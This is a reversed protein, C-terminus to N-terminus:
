QKISTIKCVDPLSSFIERFLLFTSKSVNEKDGSIRKRQFSISSTGNVIKGSVNRIGQRSDMLPSAYGTAWGDYMFYNGSREVWGIVCDTLTQQSIKCNNKTLIFTTIYSRSM